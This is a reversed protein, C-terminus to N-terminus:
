RPRGVAFVNTPSSGWIAHLDISANAPQRSWKSGDYHLITSSDGVAFVSNPASGWVGRLTQTTGTEQRTWWNGDYHLIIGGAGVAFVDRPSTGWVSYISYGAGVYQSNWGSGYSTLITANDGVAFVTDPSGWVANLRANVPTWERTWSTGDYHEVEGSDGVAIVDNASRSFVARLGGGCCRHSDWYIPDAHQGSYRSIAVTWFSLDLFQLVFFVDGAPDGTVNTYFAPHGSQYSCREFSGDWSNGNYTRAFAEGICSGVAVAYSESGVWVSSLDVGWGPDQDAISWAHGDFRLTVPATATATFQVPPGSVMPASATASQPGWKGLTWSVSSKGELDTRTSTESLHGDGGTVAWEIEVNVAPNGNSNVAQITLPADLTHSVNATQGSGSAVKIASVRVVPPVTTDTGSCAAYSVLLVLLLALRFM